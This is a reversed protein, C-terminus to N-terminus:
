TRNVTQQVGTTALADKYIRTFIEHAQGLKNKPVEVEITQGDPGKRKVRKYLKRWKPNIFKPITVQYGFYARDQTPKIGSAKDIDQLLTYEDASIINHYYMAAYNM